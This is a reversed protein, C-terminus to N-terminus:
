LAILAIATFHFLFGLITFAHFLEHFGFWSPSPNPSKKAYVVAGVSYSIGGLAILALVLVGGAELIDPLYALSAWGMALYVAVSLFRPATIWLTSLLVGLVAASWILILLTQRKEDTLLLLAVPTYTGAILVYINSHDLRRLWQKVNINWKGVHYLASIGFLNVASLTFIGVSLKTLSNESAIVITIGMVLSMPAAILHTKGRLRPVM